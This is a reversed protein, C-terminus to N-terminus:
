TILVLEARPFDLSSEPESTSTLSCQQEQSHPDLPFLHAEPQTGGLGYPQHVTDVRELTM